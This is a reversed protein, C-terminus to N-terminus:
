TNVAARGWCRADVWVSQGAANPTRVANGEAQTTSFETWLPFHDSIRWSLQMTTDAPVLGDAFNFMGANSFALSLAPVGNAGTFWAVQDYFHAHDPDAAPDPDDFITRPVFNLAAPPQLGTSTFAQYLPDDKRDINFDGLAILNTGWVDGSTAWDALWEAIEKLEPFRDAAVNGYMVHLTVLTFVAEEWAFSV